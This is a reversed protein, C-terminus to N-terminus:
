RTSNTRGSTNTNNGSTNTGGGSTNTNGGTKNTNGGSTNTNGGSTNTNGGSTNTGGGSINTNGGTKNTNNGSTNTNNGPKKDTNNTTNNNKEPEKHITCTETIRANGKASSGQIPKWLGLEEKPIVGGYSRNETNPCYETAVKGSDKCIKQIGHGECTEPLNDETFIETYKDTCTSTALCGTTRCVTKEVIGSPKNFTKNELSKHIDKMINSWIQGAPNTGSYKVEEPTDYGFWCAASYYPTMGCLWRDFNDDTTGTKACTEIGPIKCYTATGYSATVPEMTISRTIYANQESIARQTEQNPTLVVNGNIDTVKTYFTPEIYVGDNAITGYAAAMELPSIGDTIGGLALGLVNDTKEQGSTDEGDKYLTSIGMKRLYDISKNPTLERMIKVAPVNQSRGIFERIGILGQYGRDNKPKYDKGFLTWVDDYVTAATIVKEELAPAVDAIPKISSGTQRVMQTARNWGTATQDTNLEGGVAVVYGTSHDIIAMGAQAHENKLTGDANKERGKLQYATKAFEQEVRAQIETNVTSYITLGSGYVYKEAFERSVNKEEMVQEVVQNITASTHYSYSSGSVINGKTFQLGAEVKAVATDYENQDTIYGQDLMEKLVTLTKNKRLEALETQDKSEDYPNYTNPSSNIGALFACEALDLDKASKAFYYQAGLEVGHLNDGGVFLINLYLELIQDKSIMREVQYAKAWERVKRMIGALGSADDDGTINKVLQQTITSGGYSSSGRFVTNFIAGATRWIDVGSHEYFRKDEIAIYAKPLYASMEDLTVIKRKEETSLNAIVNGDQDVVVSNAIGITLDEKTIKFDDGFLGFFIAAIVGAGIVCLLLIIIVIIKLAMSLKPHRESWKIKKGNKSNKSGKKGKVTNVVKTKDDVKKWNNVAKSEEGKRNPNSTRYQRTKESGNNKRNKNSKNPM